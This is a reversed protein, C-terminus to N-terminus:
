ANEADEHPIPPQIERISFYKFRLKLKDSRLAGINGEEPGGEKNIIDDPKRHSHNENEDLRDCNRQYRDNIYDDSLGQTDWGGTDNVNSVNRWKNSVKLKGDDDSEDDIWIENAVCTRDGKQFNYLVQKLGIWRDKVDEDTGKKRGKNELYFPHNVEKRVLVDGDKMLAIKYCAGECRERGDGGHHGGRGYLQFAYDSPEFRTWEGEGDKYRGKLDYDYKAYVTIEMNLWRKQGSESWGELRVQGQGDRWKADDGEGEKDTVGTASWSGDDDEKKLNTRDHVNRLRETRKGRELDFQWEERKRSDNADPYLKRVKHYKDDLDNVKTQLEELKKFAM